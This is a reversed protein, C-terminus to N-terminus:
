GLSSATARLHPSSTPDLLAEVRWETRRRRSLYELSASLMPNQPERTSGRRIVLLSYCLPWGHPKKARYSIRYSILVRVIVPSAAELITTVDDRARKGAAAALCMALRGTRSRELRKCQRQFRAAGSHGARWNTPRHPQWRSRCYVAKAVTAGELSWRM